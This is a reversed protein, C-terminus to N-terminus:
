FKCMFTDDVIAIFCIGLIVQYIQAELVKKYHLYILNHAYVIYLPTLVMCIVM